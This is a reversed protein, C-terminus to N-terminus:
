KKPDKKPESPVFKVEGEFRDTLVLVKPSPPVARTPREVYRQYTVTLNKDEVKLNDVSVAIGVVIMQKNWDIADVKLLKAAAAEIEKQVDKDKASTAKSSAAALEEASRIVVLKDSKIIVPGIKHERSLESVNSLIKLEKADDGFAVAPILTLSVAICLGLRLM